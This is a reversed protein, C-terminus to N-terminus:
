VDDPLNKFLTCVDSQAKRKSVLQVTSLNHTMAGSQTKNVLTLLPTLQIIARTIAYVVDCVQTYM